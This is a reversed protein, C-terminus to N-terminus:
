TLNGVSQNFIDHQTLGLCLSQTLEMTSKKVEYLEKQSYAWSKLTINIPLLYDYKPHGYLFSSLAGTDKVATNLLSNWFTDNKDQGRKYTTM